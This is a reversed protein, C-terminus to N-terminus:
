RSKERAARGSRFVISGLAGYVGLVVLAWVFSDAWLTPFGSMLGAVGFLGCSLPVLLSDGKTVYRGIGWCVGLGLLFLIPGLLTM